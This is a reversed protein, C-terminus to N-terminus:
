ELGARREGSAAGSISTIYFDLGTVGLRWAVVGISVFALSFAVSNLVDSVARGM